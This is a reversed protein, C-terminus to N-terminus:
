VDPIEEVQYTVTAGFSFAATPSALTQDYIRKTNKYCKETGIVEGSNSTLYNLEWKSTGKDFLFQMKNIGDPFIQCYREFADSIYGSEKEEMAKNFTEASDCRVILELVQNPGTIVFTTTRKGAIRSFIFGVIRKVKDYGSAIDESIKEATKDFAKKATLCLLLNAGLRFLIQIEPEAAKQAHSEVEGMESDIVYRIIEDYSQKSFDIPNLSVVMEGEFSQDHEIFPRFDITSKGLYMPEGDPGEILEFDAMFDDIRTELAVVGERLDILEGSIVKGVPLLTVDHMVIMKTAAESTSIQTAMNQLVPIPIIQHQRDLENTAIIQKRIM